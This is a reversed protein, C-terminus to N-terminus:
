IVMQLDPLLWLDCSDYCVTLVGVLLTQDRSAVNDGLAMIALTPRFVGGLLYLHLKRLLKSM